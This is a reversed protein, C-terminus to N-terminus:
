PLVKYGNDYTYTEMDKKGSKILRNGLIELFPLDSIHDGIAYCRTPDANLKNFKDFTKGIVLLNNNM